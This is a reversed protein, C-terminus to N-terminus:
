SSRALLEEEGRGPLLELGDPGPEAEGGWQEVAGEGTEMTIDCLIKPLPGDAEGLRWGPGCCVDNEGM